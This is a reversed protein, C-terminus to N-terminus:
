ILTQERTLPQQSSRSALRSTRPALASLPPALLASFLALAILPATRRLGAERGRLRAARRVFWRRVPADVGRSGGPNTGREGARGGPLVGGGRALDNPTGRRGAARDGGGASGDDAPM